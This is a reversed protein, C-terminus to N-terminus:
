LSLEEVFRPSPERRAVRELGASAVPVVHRTVGTSARTPSQRRVLDLAENCLCDHREECTLRLESAQGALGLDILRANGVQEVTHLTRTPLWQVHHVPDIETRFLDGNM